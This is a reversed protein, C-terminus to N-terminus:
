TRVTAVDRLGHVVDAVVWAWRYMAYDNDRENAMAAALDADVDVIVVDGPYGVGDVFRRATREEHRPAIIYPFEALRVVERAKAECYAYREDTGSLTEILTDFQERTIDERWPRMRRKISNVLTSTTDIPTQDGRPGGHFVGPPGLIWMHQGYSWDEYGHLEDFLQRAVFGVAGATNVTWSDTDYVWAADEGRRRYPKLSQLVLDLHGILSIPGFNSAPIPGISLSPFLMGGCSRINTIAGELERHGAGVLKMSHAVLLAVGSARGSMVRGFVPRASTKGMKRELDSGGLSAGLEVRARENDTNPPFVACPNVGLTAKHPDDADEVTVLWDPRKGTVWRRKSAVWYAIPKDDRAWPYGPEPIFVVSSETFAEDAEGVMGLTQGGLRDLFDPLTLEREYEFGSEKLRFASRLARAISEGSVLSEFTGETMGFLSSVKVPNGVLAVNLQAYRESMETWLYVDTFAGRVFQKCFILLGAAVQEVRAQQVTTLQM